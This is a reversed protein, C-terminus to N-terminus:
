GADAAVEQVFYRGGTDMRERMVAASMAEDYTVYSGFVQSSHKKMVLYFTVPESGEPRMTELDTPQSGTTGKKSM